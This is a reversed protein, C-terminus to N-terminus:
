KALKESGSRDDFYRHAWELQGFLRLKAPSLPSACAERGNKSVPTVGGAEGPRQSALVALIASRSRSSGFVTSTM